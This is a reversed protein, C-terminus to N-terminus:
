RCCGLVYVKRYKSLNLICNNIKLTEGELKIRSFMIRKPDASRLAEEIADLAIKRAMRDKSSSANAILDERNKIISM